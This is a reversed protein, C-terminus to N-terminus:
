ADIEKEWITRILQTKRKISRPSCNLRSAMEEVSDGEMKWIAVSRLDPDPLRELLRHYAEAMEAALDPSPERGLVEEWAAKETTGTGPGGRKLRQQDRVQHFAKRATTVVLVAWLNERDALDPFRGQEAGRCFSDFASLAVDEEDAARRPADRLKTRALGVLRHFYRQWLQETARRDGGVLQGLWRSISGDPTMAEARTM